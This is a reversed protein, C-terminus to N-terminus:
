RVSATTLLPFGFAIYVFSAVAADDVRAPRFRWQRAAELAVEDYPPSSGMIRADSVCGDPDVSLEVLVVGPAFARLPFAPPVVATPFPTEALAAAVDVPPTGLTPAYLSPPRYVAGVLVTAVRTTRMSFRITPTAATTVRESPRFRWAKVTDVVLDTLLPTAVLPKVDAVRGELDITLEVFAEAASLMMPAGPPAGGAILRPLAITSPAPIAQPVFDIILNAEIDRLVLADNMFRYELRNPVRPLAALLDPPMTPLPAGM